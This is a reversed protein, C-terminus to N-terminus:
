SCAAPWVRSSRSRACRTTRSITSASVCCSATLIPRGSSATPSIARPRIACCSEASYHGKWSVGIDRGIRVADVWGIPAWIPSGSALWLADGIEERILRVMRMWVEIRSLGDSYRRAHQPDYDCGFHMFDTKFYGCGWDQRWTRFVTRMYAEAEPHTIDLM